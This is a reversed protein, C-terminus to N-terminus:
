LWVIIALIFLSSPLLSKWAIIILYDYRYRVYTVRIWITVFLISLTLIIVLISSILSISPIFWGLFIYTIVQCSVILVRYETLFTFAFYGGSYETNYGSVLESEREAFDFPARHTEALTCFLWLPFLLLVLVSSFSSISLLDYSSTMVCVVILLTTIVAEYSITQAVSRLRGILSYKSNSSWGSMLVPIVLVRGVVIFLLLSYNISHTVLPISLWIVLSFSLGFHPSLNYIFYNSELPTLKSKTLLKVADLIPQLLGLFSVKNPGVRSHILGIVKREFLTFFAVTLLILLIAVLYVLSYILSTLIVPYQPISGGSCSEFSNNGM